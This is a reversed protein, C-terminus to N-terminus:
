NYKSMFNEFSLSLYDKLMFYAKDMVSDIVIREEKSFKGLVHNIADEGKGIGIRIRKIENTHLLSNKSIQWVKKSLM